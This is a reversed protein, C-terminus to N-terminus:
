AVLAPFVLLLLIAALVRLAGKTVKIICNAKAVASGVIGFEGRTLTPKAVPTALGVIKALVKGLPSSFVHFRKAPFAGNELLM